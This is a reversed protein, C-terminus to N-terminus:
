KGRTRKKKKTAKKVKEKAALKKAAPPKGLGELRDLCAKQVALVDKRDCGCLMAIGPAGSYKFPEGLMRVIHKVKDATLEPKLRAKSPNKVKGLDEKSLKAVTDTILKMTKEEQRLLRAVTGRM